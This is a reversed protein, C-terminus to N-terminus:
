LLINTFFLRTMDARTTSFDTRSKAALTSPIIIQKIQELQNLLLIRNEYTISADTPSNPSLEDIIGRSALYNHMMILTEDTDGIGTNEKCARIRYYLEVLVSMRGALLTFEEQVNADTCVTDNVELSTWSNSKLQIPHSIDLKESHEFTRINYWPRDRIAWLMVDKIPHSGIIWNDSNLIVTHWQM